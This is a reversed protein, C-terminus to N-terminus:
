RASSPLGINTDTPGGHTLPRLLVPRGTRLLRGPLEPPRQPTPTTTRSTRTTMSRTSCRADPTPLTRHQCISGSTRPRTTRRECGPAPVGGIAALKRYIRRAATSLRVSNRSELGNAAVYQSSIPVGAAVPNFGPPANTSGLTHGKWQDYPSGQGPDNLAGASRGQSPSANTNLGLVDPAFTQGDHCSLCLENAPAKLLRMNPGSASLWNGDAAAATSPTAASNWDHQM